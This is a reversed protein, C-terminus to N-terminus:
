KEFLDSLDGLGYVDEECTRFSKTERWLCDEGNHYCIGDNHYCDFMDEIEWECTANAYRQQGCNAESCFAFECKCGTEYKFRIGNKQAKTLNKYPMVWDCLSTYLNGDMAVGTILYNTGIQLANVACQGQHAPSIIIGKSANEYKEGSKFVRKINVTYQTEIPTDDKYVTDTDLIGALVVYDSACYHQQPHRLQCFCSDGQQVILGLFIAVAVLFVNITAM